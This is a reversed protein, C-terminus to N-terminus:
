GGGGQQTSAPLCGTGKVGCPPILLASSSASRRDWAHYFCVGWEEVSHQWWSWIPPEDKTGQRTSGTRSPYHWHPGTTVQTKMTVWCCYFKLLHYVGPSALIRSEGPSLPSSLRWGMWYCCSLILLSSTPKNVSWGEGERRRTAASGLLTPTPVGRM